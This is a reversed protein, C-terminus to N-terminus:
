PLRALPKEYLRWRKYPELNMGELPSTLSANDELIWSAEAGEARIKMARRAVEFAFLPFFGRNQYEQRLGLLVIRGTRVKPLGILLRAINWPWLRGSPIRCLVRNIDRAIMIFGVTKGDLEAVFAFDPHLVSKLDKAIHWFGEWSPPVFGWNGDWADCYLDFAERVMEEMTDFDWTRFVLGTRQIKREALRRVRDPVALEDGAPLYYGLLDRARSYGAREILPGYYAPNWPTMMVPPFDFGDVLVGCEHNMSPSVPGRASDLGRAGLWAEAQEFLGNAAEQDDRCEFFGFFGVRDDHHDNHWRNEIAAVRGVPRGSRKAIFLAREAQQYFPNGSQDLGDRVVARLPPIWGSSVPEDHVRWAVDVFRSTGWRRKVQIIELSGSM